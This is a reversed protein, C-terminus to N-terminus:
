ISKLLEETQAREPFNRNGELIKQLQARADDKRGSKILAQAYHLQIAAIEPAKKAAQELLSLSRDIQGNLMLVWGVTDVVEPDDGGAELAKEAIAVARPDGTQQYLWALNNLVIPNDSQSDVIQEYTQIALKNEGDEIYAMGLLIRAAVDAPHNELWKRITRTAGAKDGSDRQALFIRQALTDTPEIEFGKQYATLAGRYDSRARLVDGEMQYGVARKPLASQIQRTVDVAKDFQKSKSAAQVLAAAAPFYAPNLSLARKWEAEAQDPTGAISLSQGLLFHLQPNDPHANVMPQFTSVAGPYDGAALQIMGSEVQVRLNKPHASKLEDIIKKATTYDHQLLLYEALVVRHQVDTANERIAVQLWKEMEGPKKQRRALDVLGLLANINGPHKELIQRYWGAAADFNKKTAELKALNTAAAIYGPQIELAKTWYKRASDANGKRYYAVGLLNAPVPNEPQKAFLKLGSDIAADFDKQRILTLTLMVDAQGLDNGIDVATRLEGVAQDFSGTGLYSMALQTRIAAADPAIEAAKTLLETARDFNGTEIYASGLLAMIQPDDAVQARASELLQIAEDFKRIKLTTAALLKIAPLYGPVGNVYRSLYSYATELQNENYAIAGLLLISPWHDPIARVVKNLSEAAAGYSKKEFDIAGQMYLAMPVDGATNRVDHLDKEAADFDRMAIYVAARALKAPLYRPNVALAKGFMEIASINDGEARNVEGLIMWADAVDERVKLAQRAYKGALAFDKKSGAIRAAAVLVEVSQQDLQLAKDLNQEAAPLNNLALEGMAVIAYLEAQVTRSVGADPHIEELMERPKGALIYARALPVIWRETSIGLREAHKFEKIASEGDGLQVYATALLFRAEGNEPSDRLLNKLQIVAARYEGSAIYDQADTLYDASAPCGGGLALLLGILMWPIRKM